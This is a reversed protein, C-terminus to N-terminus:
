LKGAIFFPYRRWSILGECNRHAPSVGVTLLQFALPSPAGVRELGEIQFKVQCRWPVSVAGKFDSMHVVGLQIHFDNAGAGPAHQTARPHSEQDVSVAAPYQGHIKRKVRRTVAGAHHNQTLTHAAVVTDRLDHHDFPPRSNSLM